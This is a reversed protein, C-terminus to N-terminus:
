YCFNSNFEICVLFFLNNRWVIINIKENFNISNFVTEWISLYIDLIIINKLYPESWEKSSTMLSTNEIEGTEKEKSHIDKIPLDEEQIELNSHGYSTTLKKSTPDLQISKMLWIKSPLLEMNAWHLKLLNM